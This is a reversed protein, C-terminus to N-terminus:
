GGAFGARNLDWHGRGRRRLRGGGGAWVLDYARSAADAAGALCTALAAGALANLLKM